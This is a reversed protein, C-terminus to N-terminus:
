KDWGSVDIGTLEHFERNPEAFHELLRLRTEPRMPAPGTTRSLPSRKLLQFLLERFSPPSLRRIRAYGPVARLRHSLTRRLRHHQGENLFVTQETLGPQRSLGLFAQVRDLVEAPDKALADLRIFLFQDRPFCKFYCRLIDAYHSVQIYRPDLRIATEFDVPTPAQRTNYHVQSYARDVPHRVLYILRARPTFGALRRATEGIERMMESVASEPDSPAALKSETPENRWHSWGTYCTSGEARLQGPTGAALLKTYTRRAKEETVEWRLIEPEKAQSFCVDPHRALYQVLTTTGSKAAGIVVFDPFPHDSRSFERLGM